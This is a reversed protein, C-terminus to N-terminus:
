PVLWTHISTETVVKRDIILQVTAHKGIQSAPQIYFDADVMFDESGTKTGFTFYVFRGDNTVESADPYFGQTDFMRLYDATVALTIQGPLGGDHHVRVRWPTDLGARAVQPYVVQVSYGSGATTVTRSHVGFFGAAGALVVVFLVVAGLRRGWRQPPTPSIDDLTSTDATM